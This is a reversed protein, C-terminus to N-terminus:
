TNELVQNSYSNIHERTSLYKFQHTRQQKIAQHISTNELAQNSSSNIHERNSSQKIFKHTRQYKITKHISTNELAQTLSPAQPLHLGLEAHLDVVGEGEDLDLEGGQVIHNTTFCRSIFICLPDIGGIPSFTNLEVVRKQM